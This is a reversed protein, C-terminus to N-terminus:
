PMPAGTTLAYRVFDLTSKIEAPDASQRVKLSPNPREDRAHRILGAWRSDLARGAWEAGAPKSGIRGTALTHLMRCYSLVVFPQAWRNDIPYRGAFIEEAWAQMTAAVEARLEDASVPDILERAAPGALAIGCERTVWRVVLQNDHTSRILERSGNDLYLLPTRVPDARRFLDKPFYSGELHGAWRAPLDHIRAHMAQLAPLEGASVERDIVILWDVDSDADWDGLAFSGQLYAGVFNDGLISQASTVLDILVVNLELDPTPSNM